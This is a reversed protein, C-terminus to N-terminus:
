AIEETGTAVVYLEFKSGNRDIQLGVDDFVPMMEFHTDGDPYPAQQHPLTGIQIKLTNGSNLRAGCPELYFVDTVYGGGVSHAREAMYGRAVQVGDEWISCYIQVAANDAQWKLTIKGGYLDASAPLTGEWYAFTETVVGGDILVDPPNEGDQLSQLYDGADIAPSYAHSASDSGSPAVGVGLVNNARPYYTQIATSTDMDALAMAHHDIFLTNGDYDRDTGHQIAIRCEAINAPDTQGTPYFYTELGGTEAKLYYDFWAKRQAYRLNDEDTNNPTGHGGTSFNLHVKATASQFTELYARQRGWRDDYAAAYMMPVTTLAIRTQQWTLRDHYDQGDLLALYTAADSNEISDNHQALTAADFRGGQTHRGQRALDESFEALAEIQANKVTNNNWETGFPLFREKLDPGITWGCVALFTPYTDSGGRWGETVVDPTLSSPDQGSLGALGFSISAGQSTGCAGLKSFDIIGPHQREIEELVEVADLIERDTINFLGGGANLNCSVGQGRFDWTVTAYGAVLYEETQTLATYASGGTGHSFLVTPCAGTRVRPWRLFAVLRFGDSMECVVRRQDWVGSGGSDLKRARLRNATLHTGSHAREGM